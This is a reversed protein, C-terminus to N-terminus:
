ATTVTTRIVIADVFNGADVIVNGVDVYVSVNASKESSSGSIVVYVGHRSPASPIRRRIRMIKRKGIRSFGGYVVGPIGGSRLFNKSIMWRLVFGIGPFGM